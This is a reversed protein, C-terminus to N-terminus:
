HSPRFIAGFSLQQLSAPWTVGEIAQNFFHGFTLQQLSPPWEVGVVAQDFFFGFTLQLLSTPWVVGEVAQNLNLESSLTRIAAPSKGMCHANLGEGIFPQWLSAPWAVRENYFGWSFTQDKPPRWWERTQVSSNM